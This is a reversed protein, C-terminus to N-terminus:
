TRGCAAASSERLTPGDSSTLLKDAQTEKLNRTVSADGARTKVNASDGLSACADVAMAEAVFADITESRALFPLLAM